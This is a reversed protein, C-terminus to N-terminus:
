NRIRRILEETLIEFIDNSTYRLLKYCRFLSTLTKNDLVFTDKQRILHIVKHTLADIFDEPYNFGILM